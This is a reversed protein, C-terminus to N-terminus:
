QKKKDASLEGNVIKEVQQAFRETPILAQDAQQMKQMVDPPYPYHQGQMAADRQNLLQQIGVAQGPNQISFLGHGAEHGFTEALRYMPSDLLGQYKNFGPVLDAGTVGSIGKIQKFDLQLTAKTFDKGDATFNTITFQGATGAGLSSNEITFTRSDNQLTTLENHLEPHLYNGNKDQQNAIDQVKQWDKGCHKMDQKCAADDILMGTPDIHKLPNNRVYAYLNLQQPDVIRGPTVTFPDASMFRGMTSAMYRAGFNDLGSESDREKGTFKYHNAPNDPSCSVQQGFPAFLCNSIVTGSANTMMRESGLHDAHYYQTSTSTTGTALAIRESGAFIYDTWGSPTKEAIPEDAFYIYETYSGGTDKRVREGDPGYTYTSAAGNACTGATVPDLCGIRHEADFVYNHSGDYTVDGSADYSYTAIRNNADFPQTFNWTGSQQTNGWPDINFTQSFAGDAQTALTLRNLDDYGFSQNRTASLTDNIAIVNGNNGNGRSADAYTYSKGFLTTGSFSQSIANMQLRNNYGHYEQVGNGYGGRQLVGPPAYGWSNPDMTQPVTYYPFNLSVGNMSDKRGSPYTLWILHGSQDYQAQTYYSSTGAVSPPASWLGALRGM